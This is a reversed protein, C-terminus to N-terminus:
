ASWQPKYNALMAATANLKDAHMTDYAGAMRQTYTHHASYRAPISGNCAPAQWQSEKADAFDDCADAVNMDVSEDDDFETPPTSPDPTTRGSSISSTSTSAALRGGVLSPSPSASFSSGSSISQRFSSSSSAASPSMYYAQQQSAMAYAAAAHQHYEQQQQAAHVMSVPMSMSSSPITNYPRMRQQYASNSSHSREHEASVSRTMSYPSSGAYVPYPQQLQGQQQPAVHGSPYGTFSARSNFTSVNGSASLHRSREAFSPHAYAPSTTQPSVDVPISCQSRSPTSPTSTAATSAYSSSSSSSLPSSTAAPSSYTIAVPAPKPAPAATAVAEELRDADLLAVFAVLDENAVNVKFGLYGFLEREMQNIERLSFLGQGVITWSKNSYTDDCSSKSALM